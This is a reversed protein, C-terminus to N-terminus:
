SSEIMSDCLKKLKKITAAAEEDTLEDAIATYYNDPIRTMYKLWQTIEPPHDAYTRDDEYDRDWLIRDTLVEVELDWEEIDTCTPAPVDESELEKRAAVVLERWSAGFEPTDIEFIISDKLQQFVAAIAGEVVATLEVSRIDKRLLGNGVTALAAIKQGYTLDDFCAVGSEYDDFQDTLAYDLLTALAEAFARAEAGELTREGCETRWM